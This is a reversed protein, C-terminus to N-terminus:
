SVGFKLCFSWAFIFLMKASTKKAAPHRGIARPITSSSSRGSSWRSASFIAGRPGPVWSSRCLCQLGLFVVLVWGLIRFGRGNKHFASPYSTCHKAANAWQANSGTAATQLKIELLQQPVKLVGLSRPRLEVGGNWRCARPQNTPHKWSSETPAQTSSDNPATGM